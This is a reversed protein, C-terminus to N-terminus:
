DHRSEFIPCTRHQAVVVNRERDKMCSITKRKRTAENARITNTKRQVQNRNV